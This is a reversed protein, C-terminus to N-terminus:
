QLTVKSCVEIQQMNTERVQLLEFHVLKSTTNSWMTYVGYKASHGMSDFRGDGSWTQSEKGNKVDEILASQYVEWHRLVAPILFAAQHSHYSRTTITALNMHRFMLMAQSINIGSMLIGFSTLINGAPYKGFVFPQSRWTFNDKLCKSCTQEVIAMSGNKKVQVKPSEAKCNFCFMGLLQLLSSHFVLFM